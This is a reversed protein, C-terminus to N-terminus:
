LVFVGLICTGTSLRCKAPSGYGFADCGSKEEEKEARKGKDDKNEKNDNKAAKGAAVYSAICIWAAFWLLTFLGDLAAFAYPNGFRRTRPWMPVAALYILAPISIWCQSAFYGNATPGDPM